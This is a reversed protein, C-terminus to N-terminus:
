GFINNVDYYVELIEDLLSVYKDVEEILLSEDDSLDKAERIEAIKKPVDNLLQKM